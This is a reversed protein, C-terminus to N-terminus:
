RTPHPASISGRVAIEVPVVVTSPTAEPEAIRELLRQVAAEGLRVADQRVTTIGPTVMSMWPAEDFSVLSLQDPIGLGLEAAARWAGEALVNNAAFVATPRDMRQLLSVAAAQAAEVDWGASVVLSDDPALGAEALAVRYGQARDRGTTWDTEDVLLAIRRHGLGILHDTVRQAASRNDVVVADSLDPAFQRDVEVVPIQHRHLYQSVQASLPTVVVGAVRMSAFAESGALEEELLLRDDVLMMTYGAQKAARSAGAALDAYFTNRLDSVLVGISHSVRQRLHQAMVDPVYGLEAAAQQIRAKVEAAVYGQGRLARSTTSPSVGAVRAVDKITPRGNTPEAPGSGNQRAM